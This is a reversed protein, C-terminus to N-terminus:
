FQDTREDWLNECRFCHIRHGVVEDPDDFMVIFAVVQNYRRDLMGTHGCEPCEMYSDARAPEYVVRM